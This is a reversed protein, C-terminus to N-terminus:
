AVEESYPDVPDLNWERQTSIRWEFEQIQKNMADLLFSTTPPDFLMRVRLFVYSRVVNLDTDSFFDGWIASDDEIYFGEEPGVGMQYLISFVGNIHTIIDFDFATYDEPVGLIKKVSTLVSEEM